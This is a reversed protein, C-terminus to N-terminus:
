DKGGAALRKVTLVSSIAGSIEWAEGLEREWPRHILRDLFVRAPRGEADRDIGLVGIVEAASSYKRKLVAGAECLVLEGEIRDRKEAM